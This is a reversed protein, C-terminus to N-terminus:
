SLKFAKSVSLLFRKNFGSNRKVLAVSISFASILMCIYAFIDGYLTYFTRTKSVHVDHTLFGEVLIDKGGNSVRGAIRGFPDIFCSVGTNAARALSVRNEVARFVSIAVMQYLAAAGFWGENTINLMFGAGRKVFTRFLEPFVIEWCIIVGFRSGDIEFLTFKNGPVEFYTKDSVIFSPWAITQQYPLIEGFPVLHIKLYEDLLEGSPSFFLATNGAKSRDKPNGTFKAYESSGVLFYTNAQKILATMQQMLNKNTLLYGPTAAEPWVILEPGYEAAKRTLNTYRQMIFGAHKKLNRKEERGINGQVVTTKIGGELKSGSICHYGYLFSFLMSLAASFVMFKGARQSPLGDYQRGANNLSYIHPLVMAALSVNVLVILFSVGYAGAFSAIQIVTPYQYQSHALLAWPLALFSLNSRIFELFVWLFPATFFAAGSNWKKQVLSFILGFLGFYLGLYPILIAHHHIKYGPVELVWNFLGTFFVIGCLYSWLFANRTRQRHIAFLLPLLAVWALWGLNYEPFAL